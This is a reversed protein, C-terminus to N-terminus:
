MGREVQRDLPEVLAVPSEIVAAVVVARHNAVKSGDQLVVRGPQDEVVGADGDPEGSGSSHRM